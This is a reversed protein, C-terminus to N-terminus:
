RAVDGGPLRAFGWSGEDASLSYAVILYDFDDSIRGAGLHVFSPQNVTGLLVHDARDRPLGPAPATPHDIAAYVRYIICPAPLTEHEPSWTLAVDDGQKALRLGFVPAGDVEPLPAPQCTAIPDDAGNGVTPDTEGIDVAGDGDRDEAGDLVGGDDTDPDLPDTGTMDEADPRFIDPDTGELPGDGDPDPVGMSRSLETGDQLGDGDTDANLPDTGERGVEEGDSLGDDDSDADLPNTGLLVEEEDTLLDGDRDAGVVDDLPDNPDGEGLDQRGNRDPDEVGDSVGGEDTDRDTLDTTTGIGADPVFTPGSGELPGAGDPDFVGASGAETGDQLGDGDSDANTPDSHWTWHEAGDSLGDDDGDADLPLTEWGDEGPSLEEGDVLGDGDTDANAPDTGALTELAAPLGDGDADDDDLRDNPDSEGADVAGNRDADELGDPLGAADSDRDLPDTTSAADADPTFVAGSTGTAPGPGDPDPRGTTRGLELGDQLGDGDTDARTPDLGLGLEELDDLGDDDTDIDLPDTVVGDSGPILEEGDLIGDLDTDALAASTGIIAEIADPVGDADGDADALNPDTEGPDVVGNRDIDEIGDAAGDGDTDAVLPDTSTGTDDDRVFLNSDTGDVRGAGDPDSEGVLRGVETGDQLGDGDTDALSPDTGRQLEQDDSLGDDDTDRDLASSGLRLEVNDRLGDGDTDPGVDDAADNPDGEGVEVGDRQWDEAGDISGGEDTDSDTPSTTTGPDLDPRFRWLDTGRAPGLGDPDPVGRNRGAETGDQVGDRDTDLLTPDTGLSLEDGDSLGDDDSDADLPSTVRGDTGPVVEEGDFLGDGDTDPEATDTLLLMETRDPLGDGDSDSGADDARGVPDTELGDVSGNRNGDELGDGVGGGDTDFLTPDTTSLPDADVIFVAPDTAEVPGAGDPDPVGLARGAETGDQLGDGDTDALLPDTRFNSREEGDRLGDDDSDSDLPNTGLILEDGDPVADLDTDNRAPDTGLEAEMADPLGDGDGDAEDGATTADSEGPDVRGNRNRDEIGDPVGGSDSDRVLPDTTSFPDEDAIFVLSSTGALPGAGDTDAVGLQRGLETGDHLGDDDTDLLLPQTRTTTVEEGDALGDDDTDGDFPSTEWALEAADSLGDMDTDAVLDDRPDLPRRDEPDRLGDDNEDELGDPEGGSDTDPDAPSTTTTPDADPLFAAGTGELPGPGDPDALGTEVGAELGDSLTDGDTDFVTPDSGLALEESDSLGDDDTDQDFPSSNVSPIVEAGDPLTDGDTDALAPDTGLAAEMTDPLGDGDGDDAADDGGDIPDGEGPDVRGNRDADEIGDPTGAVDSDAALPDTRTTPDADPRSWPSSTDTGQAPGIGDPDAIATTRGRELGDGLGDGDTDPNEPDTNAAVEDADGLADDDTDADLPDSTAGDAGPVVEEGDLIGDGDTDGVTPDTGLSEETLDPLGDGDTDVDDSGDTPDGDRLDQVGDGDLDETGDLAGGGDSDAMTPNTTTRPDGDPQFVREDTGRVPGAGDIDTQGTLLGLETGDAIGDRDTDAQSPDLGMAAEESDLLGDDDTDRDIPDTIFGDVGAQTEEGDLLLDDDTDPDFPDSGAEAEAGNSLGDGDTDALEDDDDPDRPNGEGGGIRGSGNLDEEGDLAGGDDTDPDTPDTTSAPDRDFSFITQDTGLLPGGLGDPDAVGGTEGVETGDQLGDGDSDINGPDTGWLTFEEGDSLGDDDSDADVPSTVHGDDGPITEEGDVLGDTDTDANLPDSGYLAEIADPLGDGDADIDDGANGLTPDLEGLDRAGNRDVDENGDAAGGDDTDRDLPDTTTAPDADRIFVDPDTATLPGVDDPDAVGSTRGLETGDQVGDGDTDPDLPDLGLGQEEGDSLGDDDTDADAPDTIIGDAGPFVEEGDEIGDLDSDLGDPDLGLAEELADPLGDGDRDADDADAGAQPDTEFDDRRGNRDFDEVGDVVGGGDTDAILPDTVERPDADPRFFHSDTAKIPGAGDPDEVGRRRGLELGDYLLDDDTDGDTPDTLTTDIEELDALGDDDTDLDLPDTVYGDLGPLTEEGDEIGDDDTDPDNPDTGIADETADPLGDFDSDDDIIVRALNTAFGALESSSVLATNDMFDDPVPTDNTRVRFRFAVTQGPDLAALLFEVSGLMDTGEDGDAADTLAVFPAGEFSMEMSGAVYTANVPIPDQVLVDTAAATGVNTVTVEFPLEQTASTAFPATKHLTLKPGIVETRVRASRLGPTADSDYDAETELISCAPTLNNVRVRFERTPLAGVPISALNWVVANQGADHVGGETASGPVYTTGGPVSVNFLANTEEFISDNSFDITYTLEEGPSVVARDVALSLSIPAQLWSFSAEPAFESAGLRGLARANTTYTLVSGFPEVNTDYDIRIQENAQLVDPSLEWIWTNGGLLEADTTDMTGDPYTVVTSGPVYNMRPPLADLLQLSSVPGNDRTSLYLTHHIMGGTAPIAGASSEKTLLLVPDLFRESFPYVAYGLDLSPDGARGLDSNQGYLLAFPKNARIQTGTNDWDYPDFIQLPRLSDVLYTGTAPDDPPDPCNDGDRDIEDPSTDGDFDVRVRTRDNAVGVFLPNRNLRFNIGACDGFQCDGLMDRMGACYTGVPDETGPAWAVAYYSTLFETAIWSHGWDSNNDQHDYMSLGWFPQPGYIRVGSDAPFFRETGLPMIENYANVRGPTLVLQNNGITDAVNVTVSFSQPNYVYINPPRDFPEGDPLDPDDGPAAVIFDTSHMSDPLLAIFRSSRGRDGATFILGAVPKSTNLQSGELIPIELDPRPTSDISGLSSFHQGADLTFTAVTGGTRLRVETDDDFAVLDLYVYKFPEGPDNTGELRDFTDEGIPITYARSGGVAERSVLELSGGVLTTNIPFQAHVVSVPGGSTYVKDGGDYRLDTVGDGDLDQARPVPVHLSPPGAATGVTTSELSLAIGQQAFSDAVVRPDTTFDLLNGNAPNSDGFILTTPQIPVLPNPEFGDEWHDYRIVQERSSATIAVISQMGMDWSPRGEGTVAEDLMEWVHEEHGIVVFEQFGTPIDQAQGPLPILLLSLLLASAGRLSELRLPASM